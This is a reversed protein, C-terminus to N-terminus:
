GANPLADKKGGTVMNMAESFTRWVARRKNLEELGYPTIRYVKRAMGSTLRQSSDPEPTIWEGAIFGDRELVHLAPYITAEGIRITSGSQRAIERGIAYGHMAQGELVALVLFQTNGRISESLQDKNKMLVTYWLIASTNHVILYKQFFYIEQYLTLRQPHRKWDRKTSAADSTATERVHFLLWRCLM